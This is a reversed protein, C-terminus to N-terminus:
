RSSSRGEAAMRCAEAVKEASPLVQQELERSAPYPVDAAGVRVVPGDLDYYCEEYIQAAVEAGWGFSRHSQHAVVVRSTKRVSESVSEMDLPVISRLDLVEADVGESALLEAARLSHHVMMSSTIITVDSGARRVEAQGFPIPESQEPVEGDEAYLLRHEVFLVPNDDRIATQLLGKADAPTAPMVIKLGPMQAFMSELCQTHQSGGGRWGGTQTRITLPVSVQGGSMYRMKAAQNGLQDACVLLFDMYMIEVVPRMGVMAAGTAMGVMAAESIPTDLVRGPGFEDYLGKTVAYVGGFKGIDEGLLVVSEDRAMEERLAENLAARFKITRM